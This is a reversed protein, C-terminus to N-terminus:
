PSYDVRLDFRNVGVTRIRKFGSGEVRNVLWGHRTRFGYRSNSRSSFAVQVSILIRLFYRDDLHLLSDLQKLPRYVFSCRERIM